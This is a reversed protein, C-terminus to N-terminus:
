HRRWHRRRRMRRRGLRRRDLRRGLRLRLRLLRHRRRCLALDKPTESKTDRLKLMLDREHARRWSPLFCSMVATSTDTACVDRNRTMAPPFCFFTGLMVLCCFLAGMNYHAYAHSAASQLSPIPWQLMLGPATGFFVHKAIM